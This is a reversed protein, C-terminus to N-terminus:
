CMRDNQAGGRRKAAGVQPIFAGEGKDDQAFSDALSDFFRRIARPDIEGDVPSFTPAVM